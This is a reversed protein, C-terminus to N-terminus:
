DPAATAGRPQPTPRPLSISSIASNMRQSESGPLVRADREGALEGTVDVFVHGNETFKIANGILNNLVQRLRGPDGLLRVPTGPAIRQILELGKAEANAALLHVVDDVALGLDFPIAELEM